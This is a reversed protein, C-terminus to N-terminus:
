RVTTSAGTQVSGSVHIGTDGLPAGGPAAARPTAASQCGTLLVIAVTLSGLLASKLM